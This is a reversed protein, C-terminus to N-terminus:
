FMLVNLHPVYVYIVFEIMVIVVINQKIGYLATSIKCNVIQTGDCKAEYFIFRSGILESM